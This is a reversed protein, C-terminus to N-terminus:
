SRLDYPQGLNVLITIVVFYEFDIASVSTM